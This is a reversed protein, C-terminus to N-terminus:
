SRRATRAHLLSALARLADVTTFVGVVEGDDMVVVCGYKRAAMRDAVRALSAGPRVCYTQQTMAEEVRVEKPDVDRLTEVLYLDRQSVIGVLKGARLVPLHRIGHTRMMEHATALSQDAGISHPAESMFARIRPRKRRKPSGPVHMTVDVPMVDSKPHSDM